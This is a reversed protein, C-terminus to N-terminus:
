SKSTLKSLVKFSKAAPGGGSVQFLPKYQCKHVSVITKPDIMAGSIPIYVPALKWCDSEVLGDRM